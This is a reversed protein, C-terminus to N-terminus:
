CGRCLGSQGLKPDKQRLMVTYVTVGFFSPFQRLVTSKTRHLDLGPGQVHYVLATGILQKRLEECTLKTYQLKIPSYLIHFVFSVLCISFSQIVWYNSLRHM